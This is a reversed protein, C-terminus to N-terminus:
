KIEKLQKRSIVFLKDRSSKSHNWVNNRKAIDSFEDFSNIRIVEKEPSHSLYYVFLGGMNLAEKIRNTWYVQGAQTQYNDTSIISYKPLLIKFLVYSPVNESENVLVDRWLATQVAVTDDLLTDEFQEVDVFFATYKEDPNILAVMSGFEYLSYNNKWKKFITGNVIIKNTVNLNTDSQDLDFNHDPVYQPSEVISKDIPTYIKRLESESGIRHRMIAELKM